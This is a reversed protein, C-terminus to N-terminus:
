SCPASEEEPLAEGLGEFFAARLQNDRGIHLSASGYVRLGNFPSDAIAERAERKQRGAAKLRQRVQQWVIAAAKGSEGAISRALDRAAKADAEAEELREALDRGAQWAEQYDRASEALTEAEQDAGHAADRKAEEGESDDGIHRESLYVIAPATRSGCADRWGSGRRGGSGHRVGEVYVPRGHRAPLQYVAGRYVEGDGDPMDHWGTYDLRCLEDSFGVFRLGAESPSEIWRGGRENPSNGYSGLGRRNPWRTRGNMTDECARLIAKTAGEGRERWYRYARALAEGDPEQGGYVARGAEKYRSCVLRAAEGLTAM